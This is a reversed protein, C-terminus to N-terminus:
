HPGLWLQRMADQLHAALVEPARDFEDFRRVTVYEVFRTGYFGCLMQNGEGDPKFTPWGGEMKGLWFLDTGDIIMCDPRIEIVRYMEVPAAVILWNIIAAVAWCLFTVIPSHLPSHHLLFWAEIGSACSWLLLRRLTQRLRLDYDKYAIAIGGQPSLSRRYDVYPDPPFEESPHSPTKPEPSWIEQPAIPIASPVAIKVSRAPRAAVNPTPRIRQPRRRQADIKMVAM